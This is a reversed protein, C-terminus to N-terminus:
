QYYEMLRTQHNEFSIAKSRSNILLNCIFKPDQIKEIPILNDSMGLDAIRCAPAGIDFAFCPLGTSLGLSLTYSYTEPWISAVFISDADVYQILKLADTDGKYKGTITVGLDSLLKDNYSFGVIALKLPIKNLKIYNALDKIVNFGKHHSIEGIFAVVKFNKKYTPISNKTIITKKYAHEIIEFDIGPFAKEMRSAVDRNPVTVKNITKFFQHYREQRERPSLAVAIKAFPPVVPICRECRQKNYNLCLSGDRHMLNVNPCYSFYDHVTFVIWVGLRNKSTILADVIGLPYGLFHHVHIARIGLKKLISVFQDEDNFDIKYLHEEQSSSISGTKNETPRLVYSLVGCDRLDSILNFVFTDTGGGGRHTIHLVSKVPLDNSINNKKDM